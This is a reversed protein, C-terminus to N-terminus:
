MAPVPYARWEMDPNNNKGDQLPYLPTWMAGFYMGLKGSTLAEAIKGGDKSAFEPDIQGDKYLEALKALANKNEPQISGYALAGDAGKVWISPQAGYMNFF